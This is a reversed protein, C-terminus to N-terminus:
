RLGLVINPGASTGLGPSFKDTVLIQPPLTLSLTGAAGLVIKLSRHKKLVMIKKKNLMTHVQFESVQLREKKM